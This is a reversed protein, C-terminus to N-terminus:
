LRCPYLGSFGSIGYPACVGISILSAPKFFPTMVYELLNAGQFLQVLFIIIVAGVWIERRRM